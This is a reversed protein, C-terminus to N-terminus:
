TNKLGMKELFDFNVSAMTTWPCERDLPKYIWKYKYPEWIVSDALRQHQTDHVVIIDGCDKLESILKRRTEYSPNPSTENDIFIVGYHSKKLVPIVVDWNAVHRIKYTEMGQYLRIMEVYFAEDEELGIATKEGKICAILSSSFTGMGIELIGGDTFDIAMTLPGM